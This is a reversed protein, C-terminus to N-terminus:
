SVQAAAKGMIHQGPVFRPPAQSTRGQRTFHGYEISVAAKDTNSVLRDTVGSRGPVRSVQFSGLYTGTLRHQGAVQRARALVKQATADMVAHNGVIRAVVVGVNSHVVAM